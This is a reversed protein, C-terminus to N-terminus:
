SAGRIPLGPPLDTADVAVLAVSTIARVCHVDDDPPLGVPLLRVDVATFALSAGRAAFCGSSVAAGVLVKGDDLAARAASGLVPDGDVYRQAFAALASPDTIVGPPPWAPERDTGDADFYVVTADLVEAPPPSIPGSTTTPGSGSTGPTGTAVPAVPSGCAVTLCGLVAAVVLGSRRNTM